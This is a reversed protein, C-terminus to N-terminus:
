NLVILYTDSPELSWQYRGVDHLVAMPAVGEEIDYASVTSFKRGFDITESVEHATENMLQESWVAIVFEGTPKQMVLHSTSKGAFSAMLRDPKFTPKAGPGYGGRNSALLTTMTHFYKAAPHAAGEPFSFFGYTAEPRSDQLGYVLYGVDGAAASDFAGMVLYQGFVRPTLHAHTYAGVETHAVPRDPTCLRADKRLMNLVAAMRQNPDSVYSHAAGFDAPGPTYNQHSGTNAPNYNGQWNNAATWGAGFEMQSVRIGRPHAWQYLTKQVIASDPLTAGLKQPYADDEENPGGMAYILGPFDQWAAQALALSKRQDAPSGEVISTWFRGDPRWADQLDKFLRGDQPRYIWDRVIRVGLFNLQRGIQKVDTNWPDAPILGQLHTNVGLTNLFDETSLADAARAEEPEALGLACAALLGLLRAATPLTM